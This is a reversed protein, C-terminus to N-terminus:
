REWYSEELSDEKQPLGKSLRPSSQSLVEFSVRNCYKSVQHISSYTLYDANHKPSSPVMKRHYNNAAIDHLMASMAADGAGNTNKIVQPGGMYPNIHTFIKQPKTCDKKLMARSYEYKNYEPISKSHIQDKTKRANEEDVYGCLYLGRAGVTVLCMDTVELAEAGLALPDESVNGGFLSNYEDLNGALINIHEKIFSNFFSKKDSILSSTGLSLIVPVNYKNALKVAKCASFYMPSTEDRLLFTSLVLASSNKIVGEPIYDETLDNMIGKSLIFSREGDPTVFCFARGMPGSCPKLFSFDVKSSTTCIYKFAYDGVKISQSITGLAISPGDSLVSYNHLTNGISGGAFEGVIRGQEKLQYYLDDVFSDEFVQSEGKQIKHESLFEDSVHVEIDVLLQDLGVIYSKQVDILSSNLPIRPSESVPFYHKTKRSGPFKMIVGIKHVRDLLEQM